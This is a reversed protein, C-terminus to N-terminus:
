QYLIAIMLFFLILISDTLVELEFHIAARKIMESLFDAILLCINVVITITIIVQYM